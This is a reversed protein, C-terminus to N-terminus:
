LNIMSNYKHDPYYKLARINHATAPWKASVRTPCLPHVTKDTRRSIVLMPRNPGPTNRSANQVTSLRRAATTYTKRGDTM